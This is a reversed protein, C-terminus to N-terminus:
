QQVAATHGKGDSLDSGSEVLGDLYDLDQDPIEEVAVHQSQGVGAAGGTVIDVYCEQLCQKM